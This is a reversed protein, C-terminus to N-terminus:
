VLLLVASAAALAGLPGSVEGGALVRWGFLLLVPVPLGQVLLLFVVDGLQRLPRAADKLDLSRGWERWTERASSYARVDIVRSGDLFGVRVGQRALHRALT